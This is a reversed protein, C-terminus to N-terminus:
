RTLVGADSGVTAHSRETCFPGISGGGGEGGQRQGM